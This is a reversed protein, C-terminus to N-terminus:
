TLPEFEGRVPDTAIVTINALPVQELGFTHETATRRPFVAADGQFHVDDEESPMLGCSPWKGDGDARKKKTLAARRQVTDRSKEKSEGEGIRRKTPWGAAVVALTETVRVAAEALLDADARRALVPASPVVDVQTDTVLRLQLNAARARTSEKAGAMTKDNCFKKPHPDFVLRTDNGAGTGRPGDDRDFKNAEAPALTVTVPILNGDEERFERIKPVAPIAPDSQTELVARTDRGECHIEERHPPTPNITMDQEAASATTPDRELATLKSKLGVDLMTRALKGAVPMTDPPTVRNLEAM